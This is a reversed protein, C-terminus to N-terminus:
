YFKFFKSFLKNPVYTYKTIWMAIIVWKLKKKNLDYFYFIVDPNNYMYTYFKATRVFILHLNQNSQNSYHNQFKIKISQIIIKFKWHWASSNWKNITAPVLKEERGNISIRCIPITYGERNRTKYNSWGWPLLFYIKKFM